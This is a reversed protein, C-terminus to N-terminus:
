EAKIAEIQTRADILSTYGPNVQYLQQPTVGQLTGFAETVFIDKRLHTENVCGVSYLIEKIRQEKSIIPKPINAIADIEEQTYQREIIEGTTVNIGRVDMTDEIM